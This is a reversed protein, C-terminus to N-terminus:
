EEHSAELSKRINEVERMYNAGARMIDTKQDWQPDEQMAKFLEPAIVAGASRFLAEKLVWDQWDFLSLLQISSQVANMAMHFDGPSEIKKM